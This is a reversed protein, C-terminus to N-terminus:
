TDRLDDMKCTCPMSHLAQEMVALEYIYAVVTTEIEEARGICGFPLVDFNRPLQMWSSSCGMSCGPSRARGLVWAHMATKVDTPAYHKAVVCCCAVAVALKTHVEEDFSGLTIVLFCDKQAAIFM